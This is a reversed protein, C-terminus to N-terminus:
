LGALPGNPGYGSGTTSGPVPRDAEGLCRRVRDVLGSPMAQERCKQAIVARLEAHFDYIGLCELCEDLHLRIEARGADTLEGDLFPYIERLIQECDDDMAQNPKIFTPPV